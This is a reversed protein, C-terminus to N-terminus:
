ARRGKLQNRASKSILKETKHLSDTKSISRDEIWNLLDRKSFILRKGIRACPIESNATMKYLNGTTTPFGNETLFALAQDKSLREPFTPNASELMQKLVPQFYDAVAERIITKMRDHSSVIIENTDM